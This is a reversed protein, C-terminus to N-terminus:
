KVRRTDSDATPWTEALTNGPLRESVCWPGGPGDGHAVIRAHPVESGALLGIVAAEHRYADRFRGDGLRVVYEDGIWARSVWGAKAHFRGTAPLGAAELTRLLAPDHCPQEGLWGPADGKSRGEGSM